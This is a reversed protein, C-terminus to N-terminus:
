FCLITLSSKFVMAFTNVAQILPYMAIYVLYHICYFYM